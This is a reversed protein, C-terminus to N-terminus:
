RSRTGELHMLAPVHFLLVAASAEAHFGNQIILPSGREAPPPGCVRASRKHTIHQTSPVSKQRGLVDASASPM